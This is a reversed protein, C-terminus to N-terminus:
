SRKHKKHKAHRKKHCHDESQSRDSGHRRRSSSKSRRKKKKRSRQLSGESDSDSYFADNSPAKTQAREFDMDRPDEQVQVTNSSIEFPNWGTKRCEREGRAHGWLGCALCKVNRIQAGLPKFNIGVNDTSIGTARPANALSPFRQIQSELTLVDRKAARGAAKELATLHAANERKKTDGNNIAANDADSGRMAFSFGTQEELNNLRGTPQETVQGALFARFAAAADDDGPQRHTSFIADNRSIKCGDDDDFEAQNKRETPEMGPPAQYLFNVKVDGRALALEEDDQERKLQALRERARTEEQKALQEREWVRKQNSQNQPNFGKKSLFKLGAVM